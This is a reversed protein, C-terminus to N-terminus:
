DYNEVGTFKPMTAEGEASVGDKKLVKSITMLLIKFDLALSQNDVYWIDAAFKDDWSIANRGNIQAWGTIGPRVDHRRAQEETYLPLYEMLLPRPGVLSMDGKVVNWLGPLEDLSTSRLFKGYRTLREADPLSYGNADVADKMTRFKVLNFPRCDLGPREQIFLVPKGLYIRTLIAVLLMAPLLILLAPLALVLDITRKMAM